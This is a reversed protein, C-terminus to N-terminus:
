GKGMGRPQAVGYLLPCVQRHSRGRLDRGRSAPQRGCPWLQRLSKSAVSVKLVDVKRAWAAVAHGAEHIALVNGPPTDM